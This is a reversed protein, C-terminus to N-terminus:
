SSPLEYQGFGFIPFENCIQKSYWIVETLVLDIYCSNIPNENVGTTYSFIKGCVAYIEM